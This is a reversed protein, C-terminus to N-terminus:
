RSPSRLRHGRRVSGCAGCAGCSMSAFWAVALNLLILAEELCGGQHSQKGQSQKLVPTVKAKSKITQPGSRHLAEPNTQGSKNALSKQKRRKRSEKAWLFQDKSTVRSVTVANLKNCYRGRSQLLPGLMSKSSTVKSSGTSLASYSM